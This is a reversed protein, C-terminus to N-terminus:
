YNGWGGPSNANYDGSNGQNTITSHSVDGSFMGSPLGELAPPPSASLGVSGKGTQVASIREIADVTMKYVAIATKPDSNTNLNLECARYLLERALLVAPSRGGLDLAGRSSEDAVEEKGPLGLGSVGLAIGSSATAAIDPGPGKCFRETSHSEKIIIHLRDAPAGVIDLGERDVLNEKRERTVTACGSSLVIAVLTILLYNNKKM